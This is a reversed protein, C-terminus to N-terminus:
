NPALKRWAAIGGTVEACAADPAKAGPTINHLSM